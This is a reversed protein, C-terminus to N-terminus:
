RARRWRDILWGGTWGWVIVAAGVPVLWWASWWAGVAAVGMGLLRVGQMAETMYRRLYAGVPSEKTESFSGFGVLLASMLISPGWMVVLALGLRHEALLVLSAVATSIDTALKLPHLQHYLVRERVSLHTTNVSKM